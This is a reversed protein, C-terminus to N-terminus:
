KDGALQIGVCTKHYHVAQVYGPIVHVLKEANRSAVTLRRTCPRLYSVNFTSHALEGYVSSTRCLLARASVKLLSTKSIIGFELWLRSRRGHSEKIGCASKKYSGQTIIRFDRIEDTHSKHLTHPQLRSPYAHEIRIRLQSRHQRIQGNCAGCPPYSPPALTHGDNCSGCIAPSQKKKGTALGTYDHVRFPVQFM